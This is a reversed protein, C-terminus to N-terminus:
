SEKVKQEPIGGLFVFRFYGIYFWVIKAVMSRSKSIEYGVSYM